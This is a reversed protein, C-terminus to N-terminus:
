ITDQGGEEHLKQLMKTAWSKICGKTQYQELAGDEVLSLLYKQAEQSSSALESSALTILDALSREQSDGAGSSNEDSM